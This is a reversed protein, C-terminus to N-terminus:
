REEVILRGGEQYVKVNKMSRGNYRVYFGPNSVAKNNIMGLRYSSSLDKFVGDKEVEGFSLQGEITEGGVKLEINKFM